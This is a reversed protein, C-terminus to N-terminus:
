DVRSVPRVGPRGVQMLWREGDLSTFLARGRVFAEVLAPQRAHVLMWRGTNVLCATDRYAQLDATPDVEGRLLVMGQDSADAIVARLVTALHGPAAILQVVQAVKEKHQLYVFLGIEDSRPQGRVIAARLGDGVGSRRCMGLLWGFSAADYQPRLEFGPAQAIMQVALQPDLEELCYAGRNPLYRQVLRFGLLDTAAAVRRLGRPTTRNRQADALELLARAPRIPRLWDFSYLPVAVGGCAEWIKRSPWAAGNAVSLDQPGNLLQKMLKIAILPNGAGRVEDHVWFNSAAVARVPRNNFLMPRPMAGYFGEVQGGSGECVLSPLEPDYWPNEFYITEWYRILETHRAPDDRAPRGTLLEVVAPMHERTCSLIKM